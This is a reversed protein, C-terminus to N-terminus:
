PHEILLHQFTRLHELVKGAGRAVAFLPDDAICVTLGTEQRIRTDLHKLLAGGGTLMMGRDLIDSSLEPPIHECARQVAHMMATLPAALYTHVEDSSVTMKRPIGSVLDRGQVTFTAESGPIASGVAQKVQEAMSPSILLSQEAKLCDIIAQNLANGAIRLSETLVIGNLAVVAIETTGGGVDMLMSGAPEAVDIGVGMAAALPEEILAVMRANLHAVSDRVAQREVRTSGSPVAIVIRPRCFRSIKVQHFLRRLLQMVMEVDTIVGHQLPQIVAIGPPTKGAMAQAAHGIAVVAGSQSSYALISPENLIIGEGKRYMVTNVTGLDVAIEDALLRRYSWSKIM